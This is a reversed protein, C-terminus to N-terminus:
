FYRIGIGTVKAVDALINVLTNLSGQTKTSRAGDDNRASRKQAM